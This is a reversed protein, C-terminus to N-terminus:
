MLSYKSLPKHTKWPKRKELTTLVKRELSKEMKSVIFDFKEKFEIDFKLHNDASFVNHIVSTHHLGVLPGLYHIGLEPFNIYLLHLLSKRGDVLYRKRCRSKLECLPIGSASCFANVFEYTTFNFKNKPLGPIAFYNIIM